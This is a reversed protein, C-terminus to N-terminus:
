DESAVHYRAKMAAYVNQMRSFPPNSVDRHREIMASSVDLNLINRELRQAALRQKWIRANLYQMAPVSENEDLDQILEWLEENDLMMVGAGLVERADASTKDVVDRARDLWARLESFQLEVPKPIV